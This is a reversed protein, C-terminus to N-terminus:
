LKVQIPHHSIQNFTYALQPSVYFSPCLIYLQHPANKNKELNEKEYYWMVTDRQQNINYVNFALMKKEELVQLIHKCCNIEIITNNSRLGECENEM